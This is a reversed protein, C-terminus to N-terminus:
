RKRFVLTRGHLAPGKKETQEKSFNPKAHALLPVAFQQGAFEVNQVTHSLPQELRPRGEREPSLPAGRCARFVRM